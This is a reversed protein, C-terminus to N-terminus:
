SQRRLILRRIPTVKIGPITSWGGKVASKIKSENIQLFQIPVVSIDELEIELVEDEYMSVLENKGELVGKELFYEKITSDMSSLREKQFKVQYRIGSFYDKFPQEIEEVKEELDKLLIKSKGAIMLVENSDESEIAFELQEELSDIKIPYTQLQNIDTLRNM